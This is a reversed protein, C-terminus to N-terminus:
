IYNKWIGDEAAYEEYQQDLKIAVKLYDISIKFDNLKVCVLALNYYADAYEPNISIAKLFMKKAEDFERIACLFQGKMNYAVDYNLDLRLAKDCCEIAEKFKKIRGQSDAKFVYVEKSPMIRLSSNFSEIAEKHRGLSQLAFGKNMYITSNKNNVELANDYYILSETYNGMCDYCYGISNYVNGYDYCGTEIVKNYILIAKNFDKNKCKKDALELLKKVKNTVRLDYGREEIFAKVLKKSKGEATKECFDAKEIWQFYHIIEHAISGLISKRFDNIDALDAKHNKIEVRIYPNYEHNDPAFFSAWFDQKDKAKSKFENRVYVTVGIEFTYKKRIWRAFEIIIDRLQLDIHSECRINLGAYAM